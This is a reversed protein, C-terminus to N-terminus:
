LPYPAWINTSRRATTETVGSPSSPLPDGIVMVESCGITANAQWAALRLMCCMDRRAFVFPGKSSHQVTNVRPARCSTLSAARTYFLSFNGSTVFAESPVTRQARLGQFHGPVSPAYTTNWIDSSLICCTRVGQSTLSLQRHSAPIATCIYALWNGSERPSSRLLFCASRVPHLRSYM